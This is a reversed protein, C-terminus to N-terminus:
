FFTDVNKIIEQFIIVMYMLMFCFLMAFSYKKVKRPRKMAITKLRQLELQKLDHSLVQFFIINDNGHIVGILGRVVDSVGPSGIRTEFRTLASEYNGSKMDAITVELENKFYKGANQKYTELIALINRNAQLEQLLCFVFRPLEFEINERRKRVMKDARQVEKFYISISLILVIPFIIPLIFFVPIILLLTLEAKVWAKAIFTEPSLKINASKLTAVMKRKNYDTMKIYKSQLIALEEVFIEFNKIKKGKRKGIANIVKRTRKTPLKLIDLFILYIGVFFFFVFLALIQIM